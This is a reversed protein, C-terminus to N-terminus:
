TSEEVQIKGIPSLIPNRPVVRGLRLTCLDSTCVRTPSSSQKLSNCVSDSGGSGPDSLDVLM